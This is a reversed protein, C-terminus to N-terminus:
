LGSYEISRIATWQTATAPTASSIRASARASLVALARGPRARAAGGLAAAGGPGAGQDGRQPRVVAARALQRAADRARAAAAARRREYEALHRHPGVYRWGRSRASALLALTVGISSFADHVLM